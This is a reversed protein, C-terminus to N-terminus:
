SNLLALLAQLKAEDLETSGLTIKPVVRGKYTPTVSAGNRVTVGGSRIDTLIGIDMAGSVTYSGQTTQFVLVEADFGNLTKIVVGVVATKFLRIILIGDGENKSLSFLSDSTIAGDVLRAEGNITLANVGDPVVIYREGATAFTRLPYAPIGFATETGATYEQGEITVTYTGKHWGKSEIYEAFETTTMVNLSGGGGIVNPLAQAIQSLPDLTPDLVFDPDASTITEIIRDLTSKYADINM